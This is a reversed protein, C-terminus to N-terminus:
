KQVQLWQRWLGEERVPDAFSTIVGPLPVAGEARVIGYYADFEEPRTEMLYATLLRAGRRYASGDKGRFDAERASLLKSLTPLDGAGPRLGAATAAELVGVLGEVLWPSWRPSGADFLLLRAGAQRLAATVRGQDIKSDMRVIIARRSPDFLGEHKELSEAADGGYRRRDGDPADLLVVPVPEVPDKLGLRKGYTQVSSAVFDRLAQPAFEVALSRRPARIVFPAQRIEPYQWSEVRQGLGGALADGWAHLVLVAALLPLTLLLVKVPARRDNM